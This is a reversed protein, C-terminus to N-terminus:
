VGGQIKAAARATGYATDITVAVALRRTESDYGSEYSEIGTVGETRLIRRRILPDYDEPRSKGLTHAYPTGSEVDLFWQGLNLELRTRVAQAVAEPCDILFDAMGHGFVYDGNNDLKRYRM